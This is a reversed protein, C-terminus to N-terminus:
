SLSTIMPFQDDSRMADEWSVASRGNAAMRGMIATMTSRAADAAEQPLRGERLSAILHDQQAQWGQGRTEKLDSQWRKAGRADRILSRGLDCSGSTGHVYEGPHVSTPQQRRCNAFLRLGNAYTYEITQHDAVLSRSLVFTSEDLSNLGGQGLAEIPHGGCLDNMLDLSAVHQENILDGSLWTFQRWDRLQSMLDSAVGKKEVSPSGKVTSRGVSYTRAHILDGIAGNQLRTLCAQTRPDHRRQFGAQIAIGKESALEGAAIVRRVGPADVAVPREMLVHKGAAVAAELQQPRFAPPTALVVLDAESAMVGQFGDLGTFRNGSDVQTQTGCRGNIARFSSQIQHPFADAMSVLEIGHDGRLDRDRLDRDRLGRDRLGRDLDHGNRLLEIVAATGRWGCGVLGIKITDSGIAHAASAPSLSSGAMASGALM